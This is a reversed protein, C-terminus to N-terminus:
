NVIVKTKVRTCIFCRNIYSYKAETYVDVDINGKGLGLVRSNDGMFIKVPKKFKKYKTMRDLMSSMHQSARSDVCWWNSQSKPGVKMATNNNIQDAKRKPQIKTCDKAKHGTKGCSHSKGPFRGSINPRNQLKSYCKVTCHGTKGCRECKLGGVSNGDRQSAILADQSIEGHQDQQEKYKGKDEDSLLTNIVYDWTLKTEDDGILTELATILSNFTDPLSSLLTICM